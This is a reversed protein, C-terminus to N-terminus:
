FRRESRNWDLARPARATRKDAPLIGRGTFILPDAAIENSNQLAKM